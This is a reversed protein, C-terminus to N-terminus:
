YGVFFLVSKNLVLYQNGCEDVKVLPSQPTEGTIAVLLASSTSAFMAGRISAACLTNAEIAATSNSGIKLTYSNGYFTIVGETSLSAFGASLVEHEPVVNNRVAVTLRGAVENHSHFEPFFVFESKNNFLFEIYKVRMM